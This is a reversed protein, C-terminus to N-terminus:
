DLELAACVPELFSLGSVIRTSLGLTRAQKLLLSVSYEGILPHGPVAYILPGSAAQACITDTIGQYLREWDESEDYLDDFSTLQLTPLEAQLPQITPHVLTRFYVRTGEQAAQALLARCQITVDDWSGPGLGLITIATQETTM